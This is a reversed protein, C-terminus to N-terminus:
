VKMLSILALIVSAPVMVVAAKILGMNLDIWNYGAVNQAM